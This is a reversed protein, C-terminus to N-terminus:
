ASQRALFPCVDTDSTAILTRGVLLRGEERVTGYWIRTERDTPAPQLIAWRADANVVLFYTDFGDVVVLLTIPRTDACAAVEFAQTVSHELDSLTTWPLAPAQEATSTGALLLVLSASEILATVTPDDHRARKHPM